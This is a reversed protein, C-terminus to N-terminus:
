GVEEGLGEEAARLVAGSEILERAIQLDNYIVRDENLHPLQSRLLEYVPQLGRGTKLPAHFDIGQAACIYEVALVSALNQVVKLSKQAAISGM